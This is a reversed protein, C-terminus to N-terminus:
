IGNNIIVTILMSLCIGEPFVFSAGKYLWDLEKRRMAFVCGIILGKVREPHTESYALSLASGWSGGIPYVL